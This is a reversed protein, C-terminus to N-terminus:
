AFKAFESAIFQPGPDSVICKPTRFRAFHKKLKEIVASSTTSSMRGVEIFNSHYDISVLFNRGKVEFLDVGVKDWPQVDAHQKLSKQYGLHASHLRRKMDSRLAVPIFVAGGKVIVSSSDISMVDRMDYYPKACDPVLDKRNPWGDLILSKLVEMSEDTDMATMIEEVLADPIGGFERVELIRPRNDDGDACARSLTWSSPDRWSPKHDNEVTVSRGYTCQDFRELAFVISLMEKEIQAWNREASTLSRSAYEVPHKDQLLVAGLGDKSSDVQLEVPKAPDFYALAPTTSLSQKVKEFAAECEVSWNWPADNRTLARIPELDSALNPLFRALYQVMGCLRKIGTVDTPAPM